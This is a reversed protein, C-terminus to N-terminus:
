QSSITRPAISSHRYRIFSCCVSWFRERAREWKRHLSNIAFNLKFNQSHLVYIHPTDMTKACDLPMGTTTHHNETWRDNHIQHANNRNIIYATHHFELQRRLSLGNQSMFGNREMQNDENGNCMISLLCWVACMCM